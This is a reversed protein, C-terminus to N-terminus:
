RRASVGTSRFRRWTLTAVIIGIGLLCEGIYPSWGDVGWRFYLPRPALQHGQVLAVALIEGAILAGSALAVAGPHRRGMWAGAAGLLPGTVLGGLFYIRNAGVEVPFERLYGGGGLHGALALTLAAYFGLLAVMTSALGMCAGRVIKRCSVAPLFGILLWPASLNGIAGRLGSSDGKFTGLAIGVVFVTLLAIIM